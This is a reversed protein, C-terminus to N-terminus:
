FQMKWFPSIVTAVWFWNQFNLVPESNDSDGEHNKNDQPDECILVIM